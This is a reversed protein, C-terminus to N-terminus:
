PENRVVTLDLAGEPSDDAVIVKMNPLLREMTEVYLRVETVEKARAHQARLKSFYAADGTAENTVKLKYGEADALMRAAEGQATPGAEAAYAEAENIIRHYDERASAVDQFDRAVEAPPDVAPITVSQVAIGMELDDLAQQTADRVALAIAAKEQALIDDVEVGALVEALARQGQVEVVKRSDQAEFLFRAPDTVRYQVVAQVQVVNEDGTLFRSLSPAPTSGVSREAASFGITVRRPEMPRLRTRRDIPWPLALHLGPGVTDELAKGLRRVVVEEAPRVAYVGSLAWVVVVAAALRRVLRRRSAGRNDTGNATM